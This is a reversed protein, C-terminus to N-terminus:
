TLTWQTAMAEAIRTLSNKGSRPIGEITLRLPTM